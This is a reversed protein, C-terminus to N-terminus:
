CIRRNVANRGPVSATPTTIATPPFIVLNGDFGRRFSSFM